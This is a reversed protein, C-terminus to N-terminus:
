NDLIYRFLESGKSYYVNGKNDKAFLSADNQLQEVKWTDRDFSFLTGLTTGYFKGNDEYSLFAGRWYNTKGEWDFSFLEKTKVIQRSKTDFQFIKGPSMGWLNGEDDFTLASIAKEGELPVEEYIIKKMKPDFIFLKAEEEIPTTGLGGFVSTGGYVLGDKYELSVISENEILNYFVEYEETEEELVTLSGELSGYQGVTGIFVKGDGEAFGFPRDQEYDKLSFLLKPNTAEEPNFKDHDFPLSPDYKYINARPYVGIYLYRDTAIMNEGQGFSSNSVIENNDPSYSAFGGTLTGSSYIKGDPGLALSQIGVPEPDIEGEIYKVKGSNPNYIYSRGDLLTSMLNEGEFDPENLEIWTFGKNAWANKFGTATLTQTIPDYSHLEKNTTFYVLHDKSAPSVTIGRVDEITDIWEQQKLDYVLLDTSPSMRAYLYDDVIDIEYVFSEEKYEAPLSIEEKVNTNLDLTVLHAESGIGVYLHNDYIDISRTYQQGELITGFDTFSERKPDYKYVKGNPYTTGYIAGDEDAEISWLMSESAIPEGLSKLKDKKPDYRFLTDGGAIYVMGTDDVTIGWTERVNNLQHSVLKKGTEMDLVNLSAPNGNAVAFIAKEGNQAKGYAVASIDVTEHLTGVGSSNNSFANVGLFVSCILVLIIAAIKKVIM